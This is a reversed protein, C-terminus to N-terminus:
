FNCLKDPRNFLRFNNISKQITLNLKYDYETSWVVVVQNTKINICSVGFLENKIKQFKIYNELSEPILTLPLNVLSIKSKPVPVEHFLEAQLCELIKQKIALLDLCSQSSASIKTPRGFEIDLTTTNPSTKNLKMTLFAPSIGTDTHPTGPLTSVLSEQYNKETPVITIPCYNKGRVKVIKIKLHSSPLIIQRKGDKEVVPYQSNMIYFSLSMKGGTLLLELPHINDVNMSTKSTSLHKESNMRYISDPKHFSGVSKLESSEIGSDKFADFDSEDFRDEVRTYPFKMKSKATQIPQVFENFEGFLSVALRIQSLCLNMLIDSVINLEVSNCCVLVEKYIMAPAAVVNVDIKELVPWLHMSPNISNISVKELNNWEVAPNESSGHLSTLIGTPQNLILEVNKWTGTNLSTGLIDLQYQRDEIESGPINLIRNRAAHQYIDPRYPTRCIPNVANPFLSIKAIQIIYVDHHIKISTKKKSVPMIIRVDHCDLYALPLVQNNILATNQSTKKKALLKITFLPELVLYFHRLTKFSFLFDTPKISVVIETIYRSPIINMPNCYSKCDKKRNHLMGWLTHTHQCSARTITLNIFANDEHRNESLYDDRHRMVLGLYPGAQWKDKVFKFHEVSISGIKCKIKLYVKQFDISSVIDETDIVLKLKPKNKKSENTMSNLEITFRTITWQLWATLKAEQEIIEPSSVSSSQESQQDVSAEPIILNSETRSDIAESVGSSYEQAKSKLDPSFSSIVEVLGYLISSFLYVQMECTSILVPTMDVHVYVGLSRIDNRSVDSSSSTEKNVSTEESKSNKASLGVTANLSCTKLCNMKQSNQITYCSLDKISLTWPLTSREISWITEPLNVPLETIYRSFKQRQTCLISLFPLTIIMIDPPSKKNMAQDVAEQIGQSGLASLSTMPFYITCQNIEGSVIMCKWVNFWDRLFNYIREQMDIPEEKLIKSRKSVISSLERDSSSHVSQLNSSAKRSIEYFMSSENSKLKYSTDSYNTFTTSKYVQPTYLFWKFVLPDVCIRIEQLNYTLITAHVQVDPNIPYQITATFLPTEQPLRAEDTEIQKPEPGSVFLIQQINKNSYQNLKVNICAEFIFAKVSELRMDMSVTSCTTVQKFRMGEIYLEIYPFGEDNSADTFLSSNSLRYEESNIQFLSRFMDYMVLMKSKTGNLTLNESDIIIESHTVNPNTWYQPKLIQRTMFSLNFPVLITTHCKPKLVLRSTFGILKLEFKKFSADFLARPPDPLQCTTYILRNEYFPTIYLLDLSQFEVIIRTDELERKTTQHVSQPTLSSIKRHRTYLKGKKPMFHPHDAMEFEVVPGFFTIKVSALPIFENLADFDEESPPLLDQFAPDPTPIYYPVYEYTMAAMIMSSIRHYVGSCVRLTLSAVFIRTFDREPLNSYEFNSALQSLTDPTMDDPIAMEHIYDIAFAPTRELLLSDTLTILHYDWCSNYFKNSGRNELADADFLSNFKYYNSPNGIRLYPLPKSGELTEMASCSCYGLPSLLIESIGFTSNLWKPGHTITESYIGQMELALVPMYRLKKHAYYNRERSADTVKFIITAKDIYFGMQLIHGQRESSQQNISEENTSESLVSSVYSWAWGRWTHSTDVNDKIEIPSCLAHPEQEERKKKKLAYLLLILRILMPLQQESMGFELSSCYIDLRTISNRSASASHYTRLLHMTMSCKYLMPEQYVEIKGAANRRDLCITLDNICILKRIKVEESALETFSSEWLENASEFKLHKINMSLVIDEEVYKLILNNCYIRINGVIKQILSSLYGPPAELDQTQSRIKERSKGSSSSTSSADSGRLKLICEITNITITIPESALKTWPVHILLERIHGSVFSIPLHLEQELVELRLDLNHFCADGGWLSVM